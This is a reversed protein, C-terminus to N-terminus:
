EFLWFLSLLIKNQWYLKWIQVIISPLVLFETFIGWVQASFGHSRLILYVKLHLRCTKTYMTKAISRYSQKKKALLLFFTKLFSVVILYLLYFWIDDRLILSEVHFMTSLRSVHDFVSNTLNTQRQRVKAYQTERLSVSNWQRKYIHASEWWEEDSPSFSNLFNGEM